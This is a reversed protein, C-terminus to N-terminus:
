WLSIHSRLRGISTLARWRAWTGSELPVGTSRFCSSFLRSSRCGSIPFVLLIPTDPYRVGPWIIQLPGRDHELFATRMSALSLEPLAPAERLAALPADLLPSDTALEASTITGQRRLEHRLWNIWAAAFVEAPFGSPRTSAKVGTRV